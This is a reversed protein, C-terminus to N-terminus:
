KDAIEYDKSIWVYEGFGSITGSEWLATNARNFGKAASSRDLTSLSIYNERWVSLRVTKVSRSLDAVQGVRLVKLAKIRGASLRKRKQKSSADKIIGSAKADAESLPEVALSVADPDIKSLNVAKMRYGFVLGDEGDKQKTVTLKGIRDESDEPSLKICELETDVAGLLASSGRMGKSEDKGAHHIIAVATQYREQIAGLIVITEGVDKASNEEGGAFIRAFTDFIVLAPRVGVSDIAACLADYDELSSRLNLQAKVFYIPLDADLGMHELLADSRRKLGAAGEGAV